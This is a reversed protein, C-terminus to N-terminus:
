AFEFSWWLLISLLIIFFILAFLVLLIHFETHMNFSSSATKTDACILSRPYGAFFPRRGGYYDCHSPTSPADSASWPFCTSFAKVGLLLCRAASYLPIRCRGFPRRLRRCESRSGGFITM